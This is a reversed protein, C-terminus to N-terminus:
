WMGLGFNFSKELGIGEQQKQSVYGLGVAPM